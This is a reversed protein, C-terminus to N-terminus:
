AKNSGTPFVINVNPCCSRNMKAISRVLAIGHFSPFKMLQELTMSDVELQIKALGADDDSNHDMEEDSEMEESEEDSNYEYIGTADGWVDAVYAIAKAAVDGRDREIGM